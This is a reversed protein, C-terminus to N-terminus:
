QSQVEREMLAILEADNQIQVISNDMVIREARDLLKEYESSASAPALYDPVLWLASFLICVLALAAFAPGPRLWGIVLADWTENRRFAKQAIRRSLDVPMVAPDRKLIFALNDLLSMKTRCDACQDLHAKFDRSETGSLEGDRYKDFLDCLRM